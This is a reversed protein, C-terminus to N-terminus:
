FGQSPQTGSADMSLGGPASPYMFPPPPGYMMMPPYTPLFPPPQAALAAVVKQTRPADVRPGRQENDPPPRDRRDGRERDPSRRSDRDDRRQPRRDDAHRRPAGNDDRRRPSDRRLPGRRDDRGRRQDDRRGDRRALPPRRPRDPCDKAFHDNKGCTFCVATARRQNAAAVTRPDFVQSPPLSAMVDRPTLQALKTEVLRNVRLELIEDDVHGTGGTRQRQGGTSRMGTPRRSEAFPDEPRADDEPDIDDWRRKLTPMPAAPVAATNRLDAELAITADVFDQLSRSPSGLRFAALLERYRPLVGELWTKVLLAQDTVAARAAADRFRVSFLGVVEDPRQRIQYFDLMAQRGDQSGPVLTTQLGRLVDEATMRIIVGSETLSRYYARATGTLVHSLFYLRDDDTFCHADAHDTFRKVFADFSEVGGIDFLPRLMVRQLATGTIAPSCRSRLIAFSQQRNSAVDVPAPPRLRPAVVRRGTMSPTVDPGDSDDDVHM